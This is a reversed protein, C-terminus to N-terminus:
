ALIHPLNPQTFKILSNQQKKANRQDTLSSIEQRLDFGLKPIYEDLGRRYVMDHFSHFNDEYCATFADLTTLRQPDWM